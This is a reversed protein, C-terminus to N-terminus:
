TPKNFTFPTKWLASTENKEVVLVIYKQSLCLEKSKWVIKMAYLFEQMFEVGGYTKM